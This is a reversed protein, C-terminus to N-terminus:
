LKKILDLLDKMIMSEAKNLDNIRNRITYLLSVNHTLKYKIGLTRIIGAQRVIDNIENSKLNEKTMEEATKVFGFVCLKHEHLTVFPLVHFKLTGNIVSEIYINLYRYVEIGYGMDKYTGPYKKQTRDFFKFNNQATIYDEMQAIAIDMDLEFKYDSDYEYIGKIGRNNYDSLVSQVLLNMDIELSDYIKSSNYLYDMAYFCNKDTDYGYILMNSIRHNLQYAFAHDLYYMDYHVDLYNNSDICDKFFDILDVYNTLQPPRINQVNLWPFRPVNHLDYISYFDLWHANDPYDQVVLQLYNNFIWLNDTCHASLITLPVAHWKYAKVVPYGVPLLKKMIIFLQTHLVALAAGKTNIISHIVTIM